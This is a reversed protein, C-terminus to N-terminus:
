KKKLARLIRNNSSRRPRLRGSSSSAKRPGSRRRRDSGHSVEKKRLPTPRRPSFFFSPSSSSTVRRRPAVSFSEFLSEGGDGPLDRGSFEYLGKAALDLTVSETTEPRRRRRSRTRAAEGVTVFVLRAATTKARQHVGHVRPITERRQNGVWDICREGGEGERNKRPSRSGNALDRPGNRRPGLSSRDQPCRAAWPLRRYVFALCRHVCVSLSHPRPPSFRMGHALSM